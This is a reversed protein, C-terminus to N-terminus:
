TAEERGFGEPICLLATMVLSPITAVLVWAFFPVYGIADQLAGSWMGPLMMGLAMFGTCIAYHATKDQGEAFWIMAMLYATFGLGYGFQELALLSSVVVLGPPHVLALVLFVVNPVHMAAVLPWLARKLGVRSIIWGGLLGGLTM